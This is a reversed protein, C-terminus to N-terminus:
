LDCRHRARRHPQPRPRTAPECYLTHFARPSFSRLPSVRVRGGDHDRHIRLVRPRPLPSGDPSIPIGVTSNFETIVRETAAVIESKNKLFEVFMFRSTEDIFFAAYRFNGVISAPFPGKLDVHLTGPTEAPVKLSASHSARKIRAAACHVCTCPAASSLNRPADRCTNPMARIKRESLHWRRHCLEGVQQHSLRAVHSTSGPEHFGVYATHDPVSAYAAVATVGRPAAKNSLSRLEPM